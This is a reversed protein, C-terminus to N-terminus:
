GVLRAVGEDISVFMNSEEDIKMAGQRSKMGCVVEVYRWRGELPM